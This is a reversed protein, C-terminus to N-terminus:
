EGGFTREGSRGCVPCQEDGVHCKGAYHMDILAAESRDYFTPADMDGDLEEVDPEALSPANSGAEGEYNARCATCYRGIIHPYKFEGGCGSCQYSSM